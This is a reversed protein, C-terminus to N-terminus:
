LEYADMESLGYDRNIWGVLGTFAIRLADDRATRAVTM